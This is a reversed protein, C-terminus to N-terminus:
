RSMYLEPDVLKGNQTVEYHLHPGYSMGTSGVAGVVTGKQINDGAVVITESLHAYMTQFGDEHELLVMIGYQPRDNDLGAFIVTADATARVETGSAAKFDVGRHLTEKKTLPHIRMGFASSIEIEGVIPVLTPISQSFGAYTILLFSICLLGAALTLRKMLTSQYTLLHITDREVRQMGAEGFEGVSAQFAASFPMGAEMKHEVSTCIHDLLEAELELHRMGQSKMWIAVQELQQDTLLIM